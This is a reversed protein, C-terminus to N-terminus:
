NPCSHSPIYSQNLQERAAKLQDAEVKALAANRKDVMEKLSATDNKLKEVKEGLADTRGSLGNIAEKSEKTAAVAQQKVQADYRSMAWDGFRNCGLYLSLAILVLVVFRTHISLKKIFGCRTVTIFAVFWAGILSVYVIIGVVGTAVLPVWLFTVLLAFAPASILRYALQLARGAVDLTKPYKSEIKSHLDKDAKLLWDALRNRWIAM